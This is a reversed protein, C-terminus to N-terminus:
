PEPADAEPVIRLSMPATATGAYLSRHPYPIEIGADDFARKVEESISNRLELFSDRKAWVSYQLDVSSEGFGIFLITPKPDRLCLPNKDAVALLVSRVRDLDEKYAVGVQLDYRRIEFHTFNTLNAKLMTENPIRVLLNDFTRLKVSMLDIVIVEGRTGSVEIVDGVKFPREVMLFIGSILNSVSTQAAFGLGITLFGATGLLVGVNVGALSLAWAMTIILIFGTLIRRILLRSQSHLSGSRLRRNIFNATLIGLLIV